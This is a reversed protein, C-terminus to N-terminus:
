CIAAPTLPSAPSMAWAAPSFLRMPPFVLPLTPINASMAPRTTLKAWSCIATTMLPWDRHVAMVPHLFFWTPLKMFQRMSIALSLLILAWNAMMALWSFIPEVTTSPWVTPMVPAVLSLTPIEWPFITGYGVVPLPLNTLAVTITIAWSCIAVTTSLWAVAAALSIERNM